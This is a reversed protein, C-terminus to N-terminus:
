SLSTSFFAFYIVLIPMVILLLLLFVHEIIAFKEAVEAQSPTRLFPGIFAALSGSIYGTSISTAFNNDSFLSAVIICILALVINLCSLNRNNMRTINKM